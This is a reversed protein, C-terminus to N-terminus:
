WTARVLSTERTEVFSRPTRECFYDFVLQVSELWDLNMSHSTTIWHDADDDYDDDYQNLLKSSEQVRLDVHIWGEDCLQKERWAM